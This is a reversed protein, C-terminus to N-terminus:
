HESRICEVCSPLNAATVAFWKSHRLETLARAVAETNTLLQSKDDSFM